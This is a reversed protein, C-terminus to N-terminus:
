ILGLKLLLARDLEALEGNDLTGAFEGLRDPSVSHIQDTLVRTKSGDLEVEPRYIAPGARTSTLAVTVTSSAFRDSQVIVAFRRGQQENGRAGPLAKIQYIAGRFIM